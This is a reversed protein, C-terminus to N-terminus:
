HVTSARLTIAGDYQDVLVPTPIKGIPLHTIVSLFYWGVIM